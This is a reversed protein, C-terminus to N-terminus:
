LVEDGASARCLLDGIRDQEEVTSQFEFAEPSPFLFSQQMAHLNLCLGHETTISKPTVDNVATLQCRIEQLSDVYIIWVLGSTRKEPSHEYYEKNYSSALALWSCLQM